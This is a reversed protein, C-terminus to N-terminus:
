KMMWRGNAGQVMPVVIQEESGDAYRLQLLAQVLHLTSDAQAQSVSISRVGGREGKVQEAHHVLNRRMQERYDDSMHAADQMGNLFKDPQNNYLAEYLSKADAAAQQESTMQEDSSGKCAAMLLVFVCLCVRALTHRQLPTILRVHRM